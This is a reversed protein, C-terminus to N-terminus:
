HIQIGADACIRRVNAAAQPYREAGLHELLMYGDPDLDHWRQLATVMDLEGEGPAEEDIHLVLGPRVRIDKCHAVPSIPGMHDFIHNLREASNYVQHMSQFHNVYDMVVGMRDSGVAAIIQSNIEPSGMITLAHTEIVITVGEEEAKSAIQKLTGILREKSDPLLNQRCPSYSGAPGLSGTRILCTCAALERAVEIGRKIKSVAYARVHDDHDFLCERFGIGFQPQDMEAEAYVTRVKDCEATTVDFLQDGVGHFAAATLGLARIAELHQHTITRFDSPVMGCVGLRM